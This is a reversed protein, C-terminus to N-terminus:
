EWTDLLGKLDDGAAPPTSSSSAPVNQGALKIAEQLGRIAEEEEMGTQQAVQAAVGSSRLYDADMLGNMTLDEVSRDGSRQQTLRSIIFAFAAGVLANAMTPSIGLKEALTEAFPLMMGPSGGGGFADMGGSAAGGGLLGGLLGGMLGGGAGGSSGGGGLLGGLLDGIGGAGPPMQPSGSHDSSSSSGLLADLDLGGSSASSATSSSGPNGTGGLMSELDFSGTGSGSATGGSAAGGLLEGLMDQMGGPSADGSGAGLFAGLLDGLGRDGGPLGGEQGITEKDDTM